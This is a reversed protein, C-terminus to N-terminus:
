KNKKLIFPFNKTEQKILQYEENTIKFKKCIELDSLKDSIFPFYNPHIRMSPHMFGIYWRIIDSRYFNLFNNAENEDNFKISEPIFNLKKTYQNGKNMDYYIKGNKLYGNYIINYEYSFFDFTHPIRNTWVGGGIRKFNLRIGDNKNKELHNSLKDPYDFIKKCIKTHINDITLDKFITTEKSNDIISIGLKVPIRSNNFIRFNDEITLTTNIFSYHKILENNFLKKFTNKNNKFYNPTCLLWDIPAIWVLKGTPNLHKYIKDLIKLHLNGNYPPNGLIYDFQMNGIENELNEFKSDMLIGVDDNNYKEPYKNVTSNFLDCKATDVTLYTVKNQLALLKALAFMNVILIRKNKCLLDFKDFLMAHLERSYEYEKNEEM